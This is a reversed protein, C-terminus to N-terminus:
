EVLDCAGAESNIYALALHRAGLSLDLSLSPDAIRDFYDVLLVVAGKDAHAPATREILERALRNRFFAEADSTLIKALGSVGFISGVLTHYGGNLYVRQVAEDLNAIGTGRILREQDPLLKPGTYARVNSEIDM